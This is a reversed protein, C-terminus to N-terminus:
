RVSEPILNSKKRSIIEIEIKKGVFPSLPLFLSEQKLAQEATVYDLTSDAIRTQSMMSGKYVLFSERLQKCALGDHQSNLNNLLEKAYKIAIELHENEHNLLYDSYSEWWLQTESNLEDINRWHPLTILADVDVEPAYFQCGKETTIVSLKTIVETELLAWAKSYNAKPGFERVNQVMQEISNADFEYSTQEVNLKLEACSLFPTCFLVLLYINKM